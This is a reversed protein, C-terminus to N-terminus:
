PCAPGECALPCTPCTPGPPQNFLQFSRSLDSGSIFQGSNDLDFLACRAVGSSGCDSKSRDKNFSALLEGLDVGGVVQGQTGFKADCQNGFGDADDDLQGGTTTQFPLRSGGLPPNPVDRCNDCADGVGDADSDPTVDCEGGVAFAEAGLPIVSIGYFEVCENNTCTLTILGINSANVLNFVVDDSLSDGSISQGTSDGVRVTFETNLPHGGFSDVCDIGRFTLRDHNAPFPVPGSVNDNVFTQTGVCDITFSGNDFIAQFAQSPDSYDGINPAGHADAGVQNPRVTYAVFFPAGSPVIGGGDFVEGHVDVRVDASVLSASDLLAVFLGVLHWYRLRM